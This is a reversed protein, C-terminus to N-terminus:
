QGDEKIVVFVGSNSSHIIEAAGFGEEEVLKEVNAIERGTGFTAGTSYTEPKWTKDFIGKSLKTLRVAWVFGSVDERSVSM